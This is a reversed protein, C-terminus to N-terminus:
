SHRVSEQVARVHLGSLKRNNSHMEKCIEYLSYSLAHEPLGSIEIGGEDLLAHICDLLAAMREYQFVLEEFENCLKRDFNM